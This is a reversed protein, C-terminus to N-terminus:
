EHSYKRKHSILARCTQNFYGSEMDKETTIEYRITFSGFDKVIVETTIEM